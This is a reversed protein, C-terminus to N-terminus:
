ADIARQLWTRLEESVTGIKITDGEYTDSENDMGFWDVHDSGGAIDIFLTTRRYNWALRVSDDEPGCYASPLPLASKMERRLSAWERRTADATEKSVECIRELNSLFETWRKLEGSARVPVLRREIQRLPEQELTLSRPVLRMVEEAHIPRGVDIWSEAIWRHFSRALADSQGVRTGDPDVRRLADTWETRGQAPRGDHVLFTVLRSNWWPNSPSIEVAKRYASEITEAAGGAKQLNYGLYHWGYDDGPYIGVCSAYVKAAEAYDEAFSLTRARDWYMSPALKKLANWELRCADGGNALHHSKEAWARLANGDLDFPSAAGDMSAYHKALTAHCDYLSKATVRIRDDLLGRVEPAIRVADEGYGICQTLLPEHGAPVGFTANVVGHSLPRRASLFRAVADRLVSNTDLQCILQTTVPRIGGARVSDVVDDLDAGIAVAGVALRWAIPSAEDSAGVLADIAAASQQYTGWAIRSMTRFPVRHPPLRFQDRPFFGLMHTRAHDPAVIAVPLGSGAITGLLSRVQEDLTDHVDDADAATGLREPLLLVLRKRERQLIRVVEEAADQMQSCRELLRNRDETRSAKSAVEIAASLPGDVQGSALMEVLMVDNSSAELQRALHHRGSGVTGEVLVSRGRQLATAVLGRTRDIEPHLAM